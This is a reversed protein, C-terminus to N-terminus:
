GITTTIPGSSVRPALHCGAENLLVSGGSMLLSIANEDSHGHHMKEEEVPITHRLYERPMLAYPGEDRYNLLLYNADDGWGDRFM